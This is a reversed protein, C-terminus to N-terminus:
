EGGLGGIRARKGSLFLRVLSLRTIAVILVESHTRSYTLSHTTLLERTGATSRVYWVLTLLLNPLVLTCLELWKENEFYIYQECQKQSIYIM